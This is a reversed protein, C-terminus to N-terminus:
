YVFVKVTDGVIYEQNKISSKIIVSLYYQGPKEPAQWYAPFGSLPANKYLFEGDDSKWSMGYAMNIPREFDFDITVFGNVPITDPNIEFKNMVAPVAITEDKCCSWLVSSCLMLIASLEVLKNM